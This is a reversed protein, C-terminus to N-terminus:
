PILRHMRHASVFAVLTLFVKAFAADFGNTTPLDKTTLLGCRGFLVDIQEVTKTCFLECFNEGLGSERATPPDLSGELENHMPDGLTEM